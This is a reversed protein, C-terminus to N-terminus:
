EGVASPHRRRECYAYFALYAALSGVLGVILVAVVHRPGVLDARAIVLALVICGLSVLQAQFIQRFASWRADRLLWLNVAGPLTLIAGVVRATLPTLPWAWLETALTPVAFLTLGCALSAAGVGVLLVRAPLPIAFDGRDAVGPDARWNRLTVALVAFPTTLYLTTWTIFSIHGFHFRDWHLLTAISLLSAFLIVAPFGYKVHHWRQARLVRGFFWIGGIYACGLFMASLRPEITWAFLEGTTTPLLYLLVSAVVLFPVIVAGVVRTAPLVRDTM